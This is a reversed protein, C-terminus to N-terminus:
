PYRHKFALSCTMEPRLYPIDWLVNAFVSLFLFPPPAAPPFFFPPSPPPVLPPRSPPLRLVSLTTGEADLFM